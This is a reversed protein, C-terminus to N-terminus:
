RARRTNSYTRGAYSGSRYPRRYNGRSSMAAWHANTAKPMNRQGKCEYRALAKYSEVFGADAAATIKDAEAHMRLMVFRYGRRMVVIDEGLGSSTRCAERAAKEQMGKLEPTPLRIWGDLGFEDATFVTGIEYAPTKNRDGMLSNIADAADASLTAGTTIGNENAWAAVEEVSAAFVNALTAITMGTYAIKM